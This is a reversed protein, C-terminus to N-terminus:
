KGAVKRKKRYVSLGLAVAGLFMAYTSPETVAAVTFGIGELSFPQSQGEFSGLTFAEGVGISYDSVDVIVGSSTGTTHFDLLTESSLIAGESDRTSLAMDAGNEAIVTLDSMNLQLNSSTSSVLTFILTEYREEGSPAHSQLDIKGGNFGTVGLHGPSAFVAGYADGDANINSSTIEGLFFREASVEITFSEGWFSSESVTGVSGDWGDLISAADTSLGSGSADLTVNGTVDISYSLQFQSTLSERNAARYDDSVTFNTQVQGQLYSGVLLGSLLLSTNSLSNRINMM